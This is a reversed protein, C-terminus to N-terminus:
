LQVLLASLKQLVLELYTPSSLTLGPQNWLQSEAGERGSDRGQDRGKGERGRELSKVSFQLLEMLDLLVPGNWVSLEPLPHPVVIHLCDNRKISSEVIRLCNSPSSIPSM